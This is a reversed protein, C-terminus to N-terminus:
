APIPRNCLTATQKVAYSARIRARSDSIIKPVRRVASECVNHMIQDSLGVVLAVSSTKCNRQGRYLIYVCVYIDFIDGPM